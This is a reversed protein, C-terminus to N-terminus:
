NHLPRKRAKALTLYFCVSRRGEQGTNDGCTERTGGHPAAGGERSRRGGNGERWLRDGEAEPLIFGFYVGFGVFGCGGAGAGASVPWFRIRAKQKILPAKGLCRSCYPKLTSNLLAQM